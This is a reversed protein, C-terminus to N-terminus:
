SARRSGLADLEHLVEGVTIRLLGAFPVGAHPDGTEGAWLVRHRPRDPPGWHAPDTPGFLVVSRTAYASALHAVGTDGCVVRGATAVLAALGLLDTRGARVASSPLGARDAVETALAVEAPGGTVLVERGAAAEARAVAAFRDPPWRRAPSAAGPHVITAGRADPLGPGEPRALGLDGPDAEIDWAELLRCWRGVEHEDARWVPGRRRPLDPHAFALLAGPRTALLAETSQPGRGHLNVALDAGHWRPEPVALPATDAVEGVVGSLRALGDLASPAALVLHHEPFAAALGRLAPVGTLLDGLGLARYVLLVPAGAGQSM